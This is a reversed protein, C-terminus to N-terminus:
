AIVYEDAILSYEGDVVLDIGIEGTVQLLGHENAIKKAKKAECKLEQIKKKNFPVLLYKLKELDEEPKIFVEELRPIIYNKMKKIVKTYIECVDLAQEIVM